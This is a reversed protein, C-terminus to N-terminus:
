PLGRRQRWAWEGVLAALALLFMWWRQRLFREQILGARAGVQDSLTAVSSPPFEASYSEVVAMGANTTGEVSWAYTGPELWLEARGAPDPAVVYREEVADSTLIMTASDPISVGTWEVVLPTGRTAVGTGAIRVDTVDTRDTQLLWDMGASVVTRVAEAGLGGRLAWRWFGTASSVLTRRSGVSASLLVPRAAGRRGRQATLAVWVTSDAQSTAVGILPPLSDWDIRALDSALPSAPVPTTAYWDGMDFAPDGDAGSPWWWSPGRPRFADLSSRSGRVVLLGANRAAGVVRSEPVARVSRMEIWATEGTRAYGRVPAGSIRDFTEVLFRGEWDAPDVIIVVAPQDTVTIVRQRVDDRADQDGEAGLRFALVTAGLGLSATPLTVRRRVRAPASPLPLQRAVVRRAGDHVELWASDARLDGFTGVTLMVTISDGRQVSPPVAIELLAASPVTDRALLVVDLQGVPAMAMANKDTLEGDTVVTIPRALGRAVALAPELRSVGDSPEVPAGERVSSGFVLVTGEAGALVRATDLAAAWRGGAAAMSLSGDLLVLPVGTTAPRACGPNFVLLIVAGLGVTRLAALGVGELGLREHRLYVFAAFAATLLVGFVALTM